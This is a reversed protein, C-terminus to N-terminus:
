CCQPMHWTPPRPICALLPRYGSGSSRHDAPRLAVKQLEATGQLSSVALYRGIPMGMRTCPFVVAIVARLVFDTIPSPLM